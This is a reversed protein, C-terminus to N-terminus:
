LIDPPDNLADNFLVNGEKGFIQRKEYFFLLLVFVPCLLGFQNKYKFKPVFYKFLLM